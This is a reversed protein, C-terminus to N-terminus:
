KDNEKGLVENMKKDVADIVFEHKSEGTGKSAKELKDLWDKTTRLPFTKAQM